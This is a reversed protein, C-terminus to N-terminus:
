WRRDGRAIHNDDFDDDIGDVTESPEVLEGIRVFQAVVEESYAPDWDFKDVRVRGLEAWGNSTVLRSPPVSVSLVKSTRQAM